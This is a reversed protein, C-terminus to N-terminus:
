QREPLQDTTGQISSSKLHLLVTEAAKRDYQAQIPDEPKTISLLHELAAIAAEKKEQLLYSQALELYHQTRFANEEVARELLTVSKEISGGLLRPLKRYLVGLVHHAVDNTPDLELVMRIETKIKTILFLSKIVGKLEGIRGYAIALMLHGGLSKPNVTIAAQAHHQARNYATIKAETEASEARDGKWLFSRAQKWHAEEQQPDDTIIKKYLAIAQEAHDAQDRSRYLAEAKLLTATVFAERDSPDIAQTVSAASFSAALFLYLILLPSLGPRTM